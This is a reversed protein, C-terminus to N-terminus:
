DKLIPGPTADYVKKYLWWLPTAPGLITLVMMEPGTIRDEEADNAETVFRQILVLALAIVVGALYIYVYHETKM